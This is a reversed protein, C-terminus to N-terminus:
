CEKASESHNHVRFLSFVEAHKRIASTRLPRSSRDPWSYGVLDVADTEIINQGFSRFCRASPLAYVSESRPSGAAVV